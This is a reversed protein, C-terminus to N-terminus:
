AQGRVGFHADQESPSMMELHTVPQGKTVDDLRETSALVRKWVPLLGASTSVFGIQLAPDRSAARLGSTQAESVMQNMKRTLTALGADYVPSNQGVSEFYGADAGEAKVTVFCSMGAHHCHVVGGSTSHNHWDGDTALEDVKLYADRQDLTMADLDTLSGVDILDALAESDEVERKWVPLYGAGTTLLGIQLRPDKGQTALGASRAESVIRNLERTLKELHSDFFESNGEAMAFLHSDSEAGTQTKVSAHCTSGTDHCWVIGGGENAKKMAM